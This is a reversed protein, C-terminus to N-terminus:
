IRRPRLYVVLLLLAGVLTIGGFLSLGAVFLLAGAVVLVAFLIAAVIREVALTLSRLQDELDKSAGAKVELEGREIRRLAADIRRPFGGLLGAQELLWDMAAEWGAGREEELLGRAFPALGEFLNFDPDLGTCLGSLIGLCRGLFLLDSPVQFPMEYILDRFERTFQRMQQPHARVLDRVSM